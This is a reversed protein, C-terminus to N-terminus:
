SPAKVRKITLGSNPGPPLGLATDTGPNYRLDQLLTSPSIKNGVAQQSSTRPNQVDKGRYVEVHDEANAMAELCVGRCYLRNFEGDSLTEAANFPMSSFKGNKDITSSNLLNLQLIQNKLWEDDHHEVALRLLDHWVQTSGNILRPSHYLNNALIDSNLEALMHKRVNQCLSKKNISM